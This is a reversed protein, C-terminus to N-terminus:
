KLKLGELAAWASESKDKCKCKKKKLNAGCKACLGKCDPSCLPYNPFALIIAERMEETLDVSEDPGAEKAFIFSPERIKITMREGCRSCRFSVDVSLSGRIILEGPVVQAELSYSVPTEVQIEGDADLELIAKDEEGKLKIGHEPIESVRIKM